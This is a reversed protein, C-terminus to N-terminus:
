KEENNIALHGVACWIEYELLPQQVVVIVIHILNGLGRVFIFKHSGPVASDTALSYHNPSDLGHGVKPHRVSPKESSDRPLLPSAFQRLVPEVAIAHAASAAHDLQVRTGTRTSTLLNNGRSNLSISWVVVMLIHKMCSPPDAYHMHVSALPRFSPRIRLHKLPFWIVLDLRRQPQPQGFCMYLGESAFVDICYQM